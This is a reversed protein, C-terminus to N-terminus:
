DTWSKVETTLLDTKLLDSFSIENFLGADKLVEITELFNEPNNPASSITVSGGFSIFNDNTDKGYLTFRAFLPTIDDRTDTWTGGSVYRYVDTTFIDLLM